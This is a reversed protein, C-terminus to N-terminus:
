SNEANKLQEKISGAKNLYVQVQSQLNTIKEAEEIRGQLRYMETPNKEKRLKAELKNFDPKFIEQQLVNWYKSQSINKLAELVILTKTEQQRLEPLRDPQQEIELSINKEALFSNNM